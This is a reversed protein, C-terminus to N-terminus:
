LSVEVPVAGPFSMRCSRQVHLRRGQVAVLVDRSSAHSSFHWETTVASIDYDVSFAGADGVIVVVSSQAKARAVIRRADSVSCRATSVAVIDFGDVLAGVTNAWASQDGIDVCVTRHLAVGSEHMSLFGVQALNVLALWSGTSTAVSVLAYVMSLQADGSVRYVAGRELGRTPLLSAIAGPVSLPGFGTAARVRMREALQAGTEVVGTGVHPALSGPFGSAVPVPNISM